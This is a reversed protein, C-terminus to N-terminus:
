FTVSNRWPEIFRQAVRMAKPHSKRGTERKKSSSKKESAYHAYANATGIWLITLLVEKRNINRRISSRIPDVFDPNVNTARESCECSVHLKMARAVMM